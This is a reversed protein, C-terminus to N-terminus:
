WPKGPCPVSGSPYLIWGPSSPALKPRQGFDNNGFHNGPTGRLKRTRARRRYVAILELPRLVLAAPRTGPARASNWAGAPSQPLGSNPMAKACFPRVGRCKCSYASLFDYQCENCCGGVMLSDALHRTSLGHPELYIDCIFERMRGVAALRWWVRIAAM